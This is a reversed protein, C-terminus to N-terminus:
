PRGPRYRRAHRDSYRPPSTFDPSTSAPLRATDLPWVAGGSAPRPRLPSRTPRGGSVSYVVPWASLLRRRQEVRDHKAIAADVPEATSVKTLIGIRVRRGADRGAM